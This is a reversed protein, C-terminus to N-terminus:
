VVAVVVGGRGNPDELGSRTPHAVGAVDHQVTGRVGTSGSAGATPPPEVPCEIGTDAVAGPNAM